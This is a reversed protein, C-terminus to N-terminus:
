KRGDLESRTMAGKFSGESKECVGDAMRHMLKIVAEDRSELSLIKHESLWFIADAHKQWLRLRRETSVLGRSDLQWAISKVRTGFFISVAGAKFAFASQIM